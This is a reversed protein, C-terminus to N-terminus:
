PPLIDLHATKSLKFCLIEGTVKRTRAAAGTDARSHSEAVLFIQTALTQQLGRPKLSMKKELPLTSCICCVAWVWTTHCFSDRSKFYQGNNGASYTQTCFFWCCFPKVIKIVNEVAHARVYGFVVPRSVHTVHQVAHQSM